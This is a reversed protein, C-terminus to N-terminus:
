SELRARVLADLAAVGWGTAGKPALDTGSNTTATGAIDIHVWPMDDKIFARLFEAATVSGAPRGGTNKIDAKASKLQDRYPKGLPLRWADDGTAECATTLQAALEDNTAYFGARHHGLAIIVAGTLTALDVIATPKEAEQVHWLVDALLLRGEADTNIVEITDGKMSKVIDGPRQALGDPMNEVLGVVGIVNAKAKRLALTRMVGAVTGAGGMDMTMDEMGAAPKLSIGGTDFVVGKGVFAFPAEGAAGGNWRMTVVKTESPSGQGVGLLAGMGLRKLDDEGMIEVELGIEQMAALRAAFEDTTLRNAPENVLDRTFYVGEALAMMDRSGRALAEPNAALARLTRPASPTDEDSKKYERFDYLRLAVAMIVGAVIDDDGAGSLALTAPGAALAKAVAGGTKRAAAADPKD